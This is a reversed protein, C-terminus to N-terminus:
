IAIYYSITISANVNSTFSLRFSDYTSDLNSDLLITSGIILNPTNSFFIIMSNTSPIVSTPLIDGFPIDTGNGNISVSHVGTYLGLNNRAVEATTAGTGGNAIAVVGSVNTATADTVFKTTAIKDSSDAAAQTTAITATNITGNLDGLFTTATANGNVTANGTFTLEAPTANVTGTVVLVGGGFTLVPPVPSDKYSDVVLASGGLTASGNVTLAGQITAQAAVELANGVKLLNAVDANLINKIENGGMDLSGTMALTGDRSLKEDNIATMQVDLQEIAGQVNTATINTTATSIVEAATQDATALPEIGDLKTGDVSLDRGEVTATGTMLINGTMTGGALALKEAELEAIASDVDTAVIAGTTTSVVEAATQDDTSAADAYATTAILTSNNAPTQTAATTATNITGNLDGSFTTATVTGSNSINNAGMDINGTM